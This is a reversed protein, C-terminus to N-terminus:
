MDEDDSSSLTIVDRIKEFGEETIASAQDCGKVMCAYMWNSTLRDYVKLMKQDTHVPCVPAPKKSQDASASATSCPPCSPPKVTTTSSSSGSWIPIREWRAGCKTCMEYYGAHNGEPLLRDEPHDCREPTCALKLGKRKSDALRKGRKFSTPQQKEVGPGAGKRQAASLLAPAQVGALSLLGSCLSQCFAAESVYIVKHIIRKWAKMMLKKHGKTKKRNVVPDASEQIAQGLLDSMLSQM